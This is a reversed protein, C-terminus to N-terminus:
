GTVEDPINLELPMKKGHIIIMERGLKKKIIDMAKSKNMAEHYAYGANESENKVIIFYNPVHNRKKQKSGVLIGLFIRNYALDEIEGDVTCPVYRNPSKRSKLQGNLSKLNEKTSEEPESLIDRNGNTM